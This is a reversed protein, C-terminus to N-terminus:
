RIKKKFPKQIVPNPNAPNRNELYIQLFVLLCSILLPGLILGLAGYVRMGGILGLFLLSIPLNAKKGIFLPKLFNDITAVIGAGWLLVFAGAFTGKWIFMTITLPGWILGTGIFPILASCTTLFGFFTPAPVGAIWYGIGGIIGQIIATMLLGHVISVTTRYLQSSIREKYETDLPIIDIAWRMFKKGGRFLMFIIIVTMCFNVVLFFVDKIMKGAYITVTNQVTKITDTMTEAFDFDVNDRLAKPIPIKKESQAIASLWQATKPYLNKTEKALMTTIIAIPILLTITATLTSIAASVTRNETIKRQVWGHFPYFILTVIIAVLLAGLFPLMIKILQYLLFLLIAFFCGTFLHNRNFRLLRGAQKPQQVRLFNKKPKQGSNPQAATETNEANGKDENLYRNRRNKRSM